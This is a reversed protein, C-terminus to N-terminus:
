YLTLTGSITPVQIRTKGMYIYIGSQHNDYGDFSAGTIGKCIGTESTINLSNIVVHGIETGDNPGGPKTDNSWTVSGGTSPIIGTITGFKGDKIITLNWSGGKFDNTKYPNPGTGYYDISAKLVGQVGITTAYFTAGNISTDSSSFSGANTEVGSVKIPITSSAMAPVSIVLIAIVAIIITLVRILKKM